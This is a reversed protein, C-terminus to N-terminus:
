DNIIETNHCADSSGLSCHVAESKAVTAVRYKECVDKVQYRSM